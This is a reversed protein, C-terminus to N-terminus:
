CNPLRLVNNFISVGNVAYLAGPEGTSGQSEFLRIEPRASHQVHSDNGSVSM